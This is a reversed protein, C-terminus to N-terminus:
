EKRTLSLYKILSEITKDQTAIIAKNYNYTSDYNPCPYYIIHCKEKTGDKHQFWVMFQSGMFYRLHHKWYKNFWKTHKFVKFMFMLSKPSLKSPHLPNLLIWLRIIIRKM